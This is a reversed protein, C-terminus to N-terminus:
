KVANKKNALVDKVKRALDSPGFPKNLLSAGAPLSAFQDSDQAHGSMFLVLIDPYKERIQKALDVGNLGPMAIDTLLLDIDRHFDEAAKWAAEPAICKIVRYGFRELMYGTLDLIEKEDEVLLITGEGELNEISAIPRSSTSEKEVAEPLIVHVTTGEREATDLGVHGKAQQVIGLVTSLGLGTGKGVPKTTFFPEFISDLVEDKIGTGTDRVQVSIWRGPPVVVNKFVIPSTRELRNVIIDLNGGHEMADRANAVLNMFVQELQGPDGSVFLTDEGAKIDIDVQSGLLRRWLPMQDELLQHIEVLEIKPPRKRAFTLLRQSLESARDHARLIHNASEAVKQDTTTSCILDAHGAVVTLLNNFDHAVGGALRGLSELKQSQRLQAELERQEIAALQLRESIAAVHAREEELLWVAVGLGILFVGLLDIFNLYSAYAPEFVGTYLLVAHLQLLGYGGHTATVLWYGTSHRSKSKWAFVGAAVLFTIGTAGA